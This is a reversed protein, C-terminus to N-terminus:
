EYMDGWEMLEIMVPDYEVEPTDSVYGTRRQNLQSTKAVKELGKLIIDKKIETLEWPVPMAAYRAADAADDGNISDVGLNMWENALKELEPDGVDDVVLMQFRFLTNLLEDGRTRDKIAKNFPEQNSNAITGFDASGWDYSAVLVNLGQKMELYKNFADGATTVIGDGRWGRFIRGYKFDPRVAICYIASPAGTAGGSGVDVGPFVYWDKPPEFKWDDPSPVVYNKKKTFVYRRGDSRVFRGMVRRQVENDDACAEITQQIREATWKTKTGDMYEQCEYLSVSRKWAGKFREFATGVEEMAERWFEQSRTATFVMHFYGNSSNLRFYLESYFIYPLEEDCFIAHVTSGQLSHVEQSYFKFYCVAGSRFKIRMVKKRQDYELDWGYKPDDKMVGRPLFEPIWKDEVESTAFASDPYLYWFVPGQKMNWDETSWLEGWKEKDTAWMIMKRIQTSSKSVQNAATLLTVKNRSTIFEWAWSYWQYGFLHPLLKQRELELLKALKLQKIEDPKM